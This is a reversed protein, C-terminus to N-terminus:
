CYCLEIAIVHYDLGIKRVYVIRVKFRENEDGVKIAFLEHEISSPAKLPSM